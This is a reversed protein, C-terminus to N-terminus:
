AKEIDNFKALLNLMNQVKLIENFDKQYKKISGKLLDISPFDGGDENSLNIINNMDSSLGDLQGRYTALLTNITHTYEKKNMDLEKNKNKIQNHVDAYCM